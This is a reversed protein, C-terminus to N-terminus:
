KRWLEKSTIRGRPEVATSEQIILGTGGIARTVYHVYHWENAIGDNGASYMCMPAMVIRNKVEIDKLKFNTFLKSM